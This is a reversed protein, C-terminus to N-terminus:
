SCNRCKYDTHRKTGKFYSKEDMITKCRPCKLSGNTIKDLRRDNLWKNINKRQFLLGATTVILIAGTPIIIEEM